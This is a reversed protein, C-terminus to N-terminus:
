LPTRNLWQGFQADDTRMHMMHLEEIAQVTEQSLAAGERRRRDMVRNLAEILRQHMRMHETTHPYRAAMMMSEELGYHTLSFDRLQELTENIHQSNSHTMANRVADVRRALEQHDCDILKM